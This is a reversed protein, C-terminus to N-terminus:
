GPHFAAVSRASLAEAGHFNDAKPRVILPSTAPTGWFRNTRCTCYRHVKLVPISYNELPAM